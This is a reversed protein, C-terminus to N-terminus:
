HKYNIEAINWVKELIETQNYYIIYIHTNIIYVNSMYKYYVCKFAYNFMYIYIVNLISHM